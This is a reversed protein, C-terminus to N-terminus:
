YEAASERRAAGAVDGMRAHRGALQQHLSLFDHRQRQAERRYAFRHRASDARLRAMIQDEVSKKHAPWDTIQEIRVPTLKQVILIQCGPPAIAPDFHTPIFIKFVTRIADAPDHSTWYYGEAAALAAPDM